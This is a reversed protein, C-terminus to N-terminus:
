EDFKRRAHINYSYTNKFTIICVSFQLEIHMYGMKSRKIFNFKSGTPISLFHLIIKLNLVSHHSLFFIKILKKAVFHRFNTKRDCSRTAGRLPSAYRKSKVEGMKWNRPLHEASIGANELSFELAVSALTM